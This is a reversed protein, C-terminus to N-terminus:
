AAGSSKKKNLYGFVVDCFSRIDRNPAPNGSSEKAYKALNPFLNWRSTLPLGV